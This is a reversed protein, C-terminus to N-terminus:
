KKIFTGIRAMQVLPVMYYKVKSKQSRESLMIECPIHKPM